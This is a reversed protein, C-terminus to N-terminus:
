LHEEFYTSKFIKYIESSFYWHQLRKKPFNCLRHGSYKLYKAFHLPFINKMTWIKIKKSKFTERKILLGFAKKRESFSNNVMEIVLAGNLRSQNALKQLHGAKIPENLHSIFMNFTLLKWCHNILIYYRLHYTFHSFTNLCTWFSTAITLM